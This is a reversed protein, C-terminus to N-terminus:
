TTFKCTVTLTVPETTALTVRNISVVCQYGSTVTPSASTTHFSLTGMWTVQDTTRVHISTDVPPLNFFNINIIINNNPQPEPVRYTCTFIAEQGVEVTTNMPIEILGISLCYYHLILLTHVVHVGHMRVHSM